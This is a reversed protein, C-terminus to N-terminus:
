KEEKTFKADVVDGTVDRTLLAARKVPEEYDKSVTLYETMLEGLKVYAACKAAPFTCAALRTYPYHAESM